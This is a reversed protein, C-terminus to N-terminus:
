TDLHLVYRRSPYQHSPIWLTSTRVQFNKMLLSSYHVVVLTSQLIAEGLPKDSVGHPKVKRKKYGKKDLDM